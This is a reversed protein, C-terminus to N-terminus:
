TGLLDGYAVVSLRSIFNTEFPNLMKFLVSRRSRLALVPQKNKISM